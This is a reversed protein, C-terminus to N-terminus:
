NADMVRASIIKAKWNVGAVGLANNGVGAITGSCHTGHGNEDYYASPDYGRGTHGVFNKSYKHSFNDKLDPHNYDVGSDVVAVYVDESGTGFTWAQPANIAEMGWLRYYEPDDPTKIAEPLNLTYRYNLSAAIVNPNNRVKRLLTNEDETDSHVVMFIKNGTGSLADFTELVRVNHSAAFSKVASLSKVGGATQASNIRVGSENRLVIIVDGPVANQASASVTLSMFFLLALLRKM